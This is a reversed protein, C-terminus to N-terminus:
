ALKFKIFSRLVKKVDLSDASSVVMLHQMEIGQLKAQDERLLVYSVTHDTV